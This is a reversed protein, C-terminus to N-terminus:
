GPRREDTGEDLGVIAAAIALAEDIPMTRGEEILPEAAAGLRERAVDGPDPVHLIRLAANTVGSAESAAEAAGALRAGDEPLEGRLAIHASLALGSIRAGMSGSTLRMSDRLYSRASALDDGFISTVALLTLSDGLRYGAGVRRFEALNIRELERAGLFDGMLVRVLVLAQRARVMGEADEAKEFLGLATEEHQRVFEPDQDVMGLFGLEYHAEAMLQDDALREALSLREIYHRRAREFDGNWYAMGADASLAGIRARSDIEGSHALLEATWATGEAMQTRIQWYRWVSAAIRMGVEPEGSILSWRMAARLNHQEHDLVDLWPDSDAGVLKPGVTEALALFVM